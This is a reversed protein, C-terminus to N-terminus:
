AVGKRMRARQAVSILRDLRQSQELVLLSDIGHEAALHHMKDRELEIRVMLMFDSM